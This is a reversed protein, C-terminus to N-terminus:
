LYGRTATGSNTRIALMRSLDPTASSRNLAMAMMDPLTRPPTATCVVRTETIRAAMVPTMPPSITM